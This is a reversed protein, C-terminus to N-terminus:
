SLVVIALCHNQDLTFLTFVNYNGLAPVSDYQFYIHGSDRFNPVMVFHGTCMKRKFNTRHAPQKLVTGIPHHALTRVKPVNLASICVHAMNIKLEYSYHHTTQVTLM